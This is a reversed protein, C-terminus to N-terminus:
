LDFVPGSEATPMQFAVAADPNIDGIRFAGRTAPRNRRRPGARYVSLSVRQDRAPSLPAGIRRRRLRLRGGSVSLCLFRAPFPGRSLGAGFPAPV